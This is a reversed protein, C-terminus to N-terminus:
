TTHAFIIRSNLETTTGQQVCVSAGNLQLASNINLSKRVMFGQGDYYNVAAFLLGLDAERQQTWTSNRSLVDIEGSQLATFRDKAILPVFKVKTPDDFIAAALARCYDVDLGSWNGKEDPIGFGPLGPNAGCVLAGRQKVQELTTAASALSQLGFTTAVAVLILFMLRKM